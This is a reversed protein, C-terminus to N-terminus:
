IDSNGDMWDYCEYRIMSTEGEWIERIGAKDEM